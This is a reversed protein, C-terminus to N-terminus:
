HRRALLAAAGAVALWWVLAPAWTWLIILVPAIWFSLCIPCNVGTTVWHDVGFRQLAAGRLRAFAEGPGDEWALDTAVRYCALAILVFALPESM